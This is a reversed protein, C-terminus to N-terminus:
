SQLLDLRADDAPQELYYVATCCAGGRRTIHMFVLEPLREGLSIPSSCLLRSHQCSHPKLSCACGLGAGWRM